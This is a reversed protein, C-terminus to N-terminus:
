SAYPIPSTRYSPTYCSPASSIGARLAFSSRTDVVLRGSDLRDSAALDSLLMMLFVRWDKEGDIQCLKLNPTTM